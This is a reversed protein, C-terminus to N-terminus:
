LSLVVKLSSEAKRGDADFATVVLTPEEGDLLVLTQETYEEQDFGVVLGDMLGSGDGQCYAVSEENLFSASLEGGLFTDLQAEVIAKEEDDTAVRLGTTRVRVPVGFGGQPAATLGVAEGGRLAEFEEGIGTGIEITPEGGGLCGTGSDGWDDGGNKEGPLGCALLFITVM